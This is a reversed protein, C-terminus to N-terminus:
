EEFTFGKENFVRLCAFVVNADYLRGSNRSIEELAKDIGPAPRYPRHSTMAEVVDAVGLIRAEILIDDERLGSPYGSGNLREHHQIVIDAIPWPFDVTKLIDYGVRSHTKILAMEIESLHGPKSLIETPVSIKGIDHLLGAIRVVHIQESSFGLEEAIACALRAVHQQHGATFVDRQEVTATIAQITGEMTRQLKQLTQELRKRAEHRETIDRSIGRYGCLKGNWDFFPVGSTEVIVPHGNKHLYTAEVFSFSKALAVASEFIKRARSGEDPLMLDFPTKGLAEQPEYGLIEHIRPSAYTYIGKEDREWVFDSTTEVLGRFREESGQLALDAKKRDTIDRLVGIMEIPRGDADRIFSVTSAVWITSGDKRIMELELPPLSLAIDREGKQEAALVKAFTDAAAEISAPTLSEEIGRAMAEEFSYGMLRTYSPSMYTPRLNMDTVWIADSINEALLRYRRESDRLEEEMQKREIASLFTEGAIRLLSAEGESWTKDTNVSDFGVFGVPSGHLIMPILLLTQIDLSEFLEIENRAEPPHDAGRCLCIPESSTFKDMGWVFHEVPIDQLDQRQPKIGEVCWEHTTSMRTKDDSLLFVYSRDVGTFEGLSKLAEQIGADIENSQLNILHSSIMTMLREFEIRYELAEETLKRKTIDRAIGLVLDQGKIKVPFTNVEVTVKTGDKRNLVLDDPGTPRGLANQALLTAAKPVQDESLVNLTLFSKGILEEKTYGMMKEAARNGDVFTGEFTNLYYADPAFEFQIKLREESDRLAEEAQKGATIDNLFCWLAPKREWTFLVATFGAWLTSGGKSIVRFALGRPIESGAMLKLYLETLTQRDDPHIFETFPRSTLEEHSYGSLEAAKSNAFKLMGDQVVVIAVTANDLLLRKEEESAQLKEEALKQATIDRISTVGVLRGLYETRM